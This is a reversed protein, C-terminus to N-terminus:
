DPDDEECKKAFIRRLRVPNEQDDGQLGFTDDANAVIKMNPFDDNAVISWSKENRALITLKSYGEEAMVDESLVDKAWCIYGQEKEWDLWLDAFTPAKFIGSNLAWSEMLEMSTSPLKHPLWCKDIRLRNAKCYSWFTKDPGLRKFHQKNLDTIGKTQKILAEQHFQTGASSHYRVGDKWPDEKGSAVKVLAKKLIADKAQSLLHRRLPSNLQAEFQIEDLDKKKQAAPPLQEVAKATTEAQRRLAAAAQAAAKAQAKSTSMM